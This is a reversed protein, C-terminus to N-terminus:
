ASFIPPFSVFGDREFAGTGLLKQSQEAQVGGKTFIVLRPFHQPTWSPHQAVPTLEM